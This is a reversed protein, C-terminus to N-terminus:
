TMYKWHTKIRYSPFAKTQCFQSFRIARPLDTLLLPLPLLFLLLFSLTVPTRSLPWPFFLVSCFGGLVLVSSCYTIVCLDAHERLEEGLAAKRRPAPQSPGRASNPPEGPWASSSAHQQQSGPPARHREIERKGRGEGVVCVCLLQLGPSVTKM